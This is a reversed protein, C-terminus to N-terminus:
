GASFRRRLYVGLMAIGLGGLLVQTAVLGWDGSERLNGRGASSDPVVSGSATTKQPANKISTAKPGPLIRVGAQPDVRFEPKTFARNFEVATVTYDLRVPEGDHWLDWYASQVPFHYGKVCTLKLAEWKWMSRGASDEFSYAVPISYTADLAVRMNGPRTELNTNKFVFVDTSLGNTVEQGVYTADQLAEHLPIKGYYYYQLPKPRDTWIHKREQGFAGGGYSFWSQKQTNANEYSASRYDTGDFSFAYRFGNKGNEFSEVELRRWGLATEQYEHHIVNNRFAQLPPPAVTMTQDVVVRISSWSTTEWALQDIIKDRTQDM